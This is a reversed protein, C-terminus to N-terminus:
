SSKMSSKTVQLTQSFPTQMTDTSPPRTASTILCSSPNPVSTPYTTSDPSLTTGTTLCQTATPKTLKVVLTASFSSLPLTRASSFPVSSLKLTNWQAPM